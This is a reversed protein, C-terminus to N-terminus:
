SRQWFTWVHLVQVVQQVEDIKICAALPPSFIVRKGASRSESQAAPDGSLLTDLEAAARTIAVRQASDATM